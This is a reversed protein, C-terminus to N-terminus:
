GALARGIGAAARFGAVGCEGFPAIAGIVVCKAGLQPVALRPVLGRVLHANRAAAAQHVPAPVTAGHIRDLETENLDAYVFQLCGPLQYPLYGSNGHVGMREAFATGDPGCLAQRLRRELETGIACGTGGLGVFVLPQYINLGFASDRTAM